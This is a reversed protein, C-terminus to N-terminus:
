FYMDYIYQCNLLFCFIVHLLLQPVFEYLFQQETTYICSFNLTFLTCLSVNVLAYRIAAGDDNNVTKILSSCLKQTAYNTLLTVKCAKANATKQMDLCTFSVSRHSNQGADAQKGSPQQYFKKSLPINSEIIDRRIIILDYLM